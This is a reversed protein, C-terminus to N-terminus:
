RRQREGRRECRAALLRLGHLLRGVLCLFRRHLGGVGRLVGGLRRHIRGLVRGFGGGIRRGISRFRRGIRRLIGRGLRGVRALFAHRFGGVRGLFRGVLSRHGRFVGGVLRLRRGLLLLRATDESGFVAT